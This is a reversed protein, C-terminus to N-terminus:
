SFSITTPLSIGCMKYVELNWFRICFGTGKGYGPGSSDLQPRGM